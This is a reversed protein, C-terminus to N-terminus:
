EELIGVNESSYVFDTIVEPYSEPESSSMRALCEEYKDDNKGILKKYSSIREEQKRYNYTDGFEGISM